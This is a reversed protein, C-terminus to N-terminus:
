WATVNYRLLLRRAASTYLLKSGLALARTPFTCSYMSFTSHVSVSLTAAANGRRCFAILASTLSLVCVGNVFAELAQLYAQIHVVHTHSCLGMDLQKTVSAHQCTIQDMHLHISM